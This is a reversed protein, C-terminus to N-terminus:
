GNTAGGEQEQENIKFLAEILRRELTFAKDWPNIMVGDSTGFEMVEKFFEAMPYKIVSCAPGCSFQEETTFVAHWHKGDKTPLQGLELQPNPDKEDFNDPIRVPVIFMGDDNMRTRIAELILYFNEETQEEYFKDIVADILGNGAVYDVSKMDKSSRAATEAFAKEQQEEVKRRAEEQKKKGDDPLIINVKMGM